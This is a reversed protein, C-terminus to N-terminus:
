RTEHREGLVLKISRGIKKWATIVKAAELKQAIARFKEISQDNIDHVTLQKWGEGKAHGCLMEVIKHGLGQEGFAGLGLNTLEGDRYNLVGAFREVAGEALYMLHVNDLKQGHVEVGYFRLEGNRHPIPKFTPEMRKADAPLERMAAHGIQKAGAPPEPM